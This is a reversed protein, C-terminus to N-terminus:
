ADEIQDGFHEEITDSGLEKEAWALAEESTLPIIGDGSSWGGGDVSSAWRSMPGGEGALFYRGARPTKYLSGSWAQFDNGPGNYSSHGIEIAKETDYRKGDIIAKM